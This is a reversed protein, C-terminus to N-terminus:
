WAIKQWRKFFSRKWRQLISKSQSTYRNGYYDAQSAKPIEGFEEFRFDDVTYGAALAEEYYQDFLEILDSRWHKKIKGNFWHQKQEKQLRPISYQHSFQTDMDTYHLVKIDAIALNEGDLCNYSDNFETVLKSNNKFLAMCEQHSNPNNQLNEYSPLVEKAKECDWVSVCFRGLFEGGKAAIVANSAM